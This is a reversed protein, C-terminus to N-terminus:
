STGGIIMEAIKFSPSNINEKIDLDNAFFEINKLLDLTNGGLTVGDVPFAIEGNEIWFGSAGASFNGTTVDTGTGMLGKVYLGKKIESIINERSVNGNQVVINLFGANPQRGYGSRQALINVTAGAKRATITDYIFM